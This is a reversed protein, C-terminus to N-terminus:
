GLEVRKWNVVKEGQGTVVHRIFLGEEAKRYAGEPVPLGNYTGRLAKEISFLGLERLSGKYLFHQLGRIVKTARRQVRELPEIAKKHQPGWFQICYELHSRMLASYLPLIVERVRSTMNRKICGLIRSAKQAALVCQQSMSFREDASVGLDREEPSSDLWKGGM